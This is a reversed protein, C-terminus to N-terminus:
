NLENHENNSYIFNLKLKNQYCTEHDVNDDDDDDNNSNWKM